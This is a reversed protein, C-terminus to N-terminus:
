LYQPTHYVMEAFCLLVISIAVVALGELNSM